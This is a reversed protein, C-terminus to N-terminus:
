RGSSALYRELQQRMEPLNPDDASVLDIARRQWQVAEASNGVAHAALALTRLHRVNEHATQACAREAYSLAAAPDRLDDPECTLLLLAANHLEGATADTEDAVRRSLEILGVLLGRAEDTRGLGRQADLLGQMTSLTYPHTEGLIRQRLSLTEAMLAAAEDYKEQAILLLGLNHMDTLTDPHEPGQIRRDADLSLRLLPEAEALKGMSKRVVALNSMTILTLPHNDGLVRRRGAWTEEFMSEAPEPKSLLYYIAALNNMTELTDPHNPGLIRRRRELNQEHLREAENFREQARIAEALNNITMLTQPDDDGVSRRLGELVQMYMSEADRARGQYDVAMALQDMARLTEQDHEGGLGTLLEVARRWHTEAQEYLGLTFYADAITQRIMAEVKPQDAFSGEIKRASRDLLERVTVQDAVPNVEPRAQGLLDEVLFRNVATAEAAREEARRENEEAVRRQEAEDGLAVDLAANARMSSFLGLTTGTVGGALLLVIVAAAAFPGKNRKILKRLRYSASPPGAQVTEDNLSRQIDRALGDASEYRRTRDKELAKMVIWDLEGRVIRALRAPETRRRRAVEAAVPGSMAALRASPRAAERQRIVQQIEFYSASAITEKEVPTTGTLLEYLLVGLSYIDSRTDVDLADAAAQEPSMYAPTGMFQGQQTVMTRETLRQHMAKAIGFDIVKPAARGGADTVLVNSPKLDRHIVGKQHAHQVAHCVDIFLELRRPVSLENRDCYDTIPIGKVLEMVFYPRSGADPPTTGADHVRAIGPHDMMALAQREAEFRAMVQRTDMGLKIIKLAVERRVPVTQEARYVIGFGGEGLKQLLKYRDITDGISEGAVSDGRGPAGVTLSQLQRALLEAGRGGVEDGIISHPDGDHEILLEVLRRVGPDGGSAEDVFASRSAPDHAAADLFIRAAREYQEPTM